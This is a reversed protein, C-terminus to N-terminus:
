KPLGAIAGLMVDEISPQTAATISVSDGDCSLGGTIWLVHVETVSAPAQPPRAPARSEDPMAISWPERPRTRRLFCVMRRLGRRHLATRAWATRGAGICRLARGHLAPRAAITKRLILRAGSAARPRSAA